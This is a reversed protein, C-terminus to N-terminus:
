DVTDPWRAHAPLRGLRGIRRREESSRTMERLARAAEKARVRALLSSPIGSAEPQNRSQGSNEKENEERATDIVEEKTEEKEAKLSVLPIHDPHLPLPVEEVESCSDLEFNRHWATLLRDEVVIPPQLGALFARHQDKVLELLANAFIEKRAVQQEATLGEGPARDTARDGRCKPCFWNGKPKGCLQVCDFHFWEIACLDNDCGVMEGYAVQGCLCYTLEGPAIDGSRCVKDAGAGVPPEGRLAERYALNPEVQLTHAARAGRAAVWRFTFAEPFLARIQPLYRAHCPRCTMARVAAELRPVTLPERRAAHLGAVSDVARFVDVLLRYIYPLPLSRDLPRTLSHFRQHAPVKRPSARALPDKLPGLAKRPSPPPAELVVAAASQVPRATVRTPAAPPPLSSKLSALRAKLDKLKVHGLRAKVEAPTLRAKVAKAQTVAEALAATRAQVEAEGTFLNRSVAPRKAPPPKAAELRGPTLRAELRAYDLSKGPSRGVPQGTKRPSLQSLKHFTVLKPRPLGPAPAAPRGGEPTGQAAAALKGAALPSDPLAKAGATEHATELAGGEVDVHGSDDDDVSRKRKKVFEDGGTRKRVPFFKTLVTQSM